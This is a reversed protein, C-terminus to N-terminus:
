KELSYPSNKQITPHAVAGAYRVKIQILRLNPQASHFGVFVVQLDQTTENHERLM